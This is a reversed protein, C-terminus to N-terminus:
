CSSEQVQRSALVNMSWLEKADLKRHPHALGESDEYQMSDSAQVVRAVLPCWETWLMNQVQGIHLQQHNMFDSLEMPFTNQQEISLDLLTSAARVVWVLVFFKDSGSSKLIQFVSRVNAKFLMEANVALSSLDKCQWPSTM